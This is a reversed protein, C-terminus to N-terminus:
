VGTSNIIKRGAINSENVIFHLLFEHKVIGNSDIITTYENSVTEGVVRGCDDTIITRATLNM